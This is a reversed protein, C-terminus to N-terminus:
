EGKEALKELARFDIKNMGTLPLEDVFNYKDPVEYDYLSELLFAGLTKEADAKNAKSKLVVFAVEKFGLVNDPVAVVACSEALGSRMIQNEVEGAFIKYGNKAFMRKIRGDIYLVGNEDIHGIDGTHVWLTGDKHKKLVSSTEGAAVGFYGKMMTPGHIAIEGKENYKLEEGTDPDFASIINGVYPIGVSGAINCNDLTYTACATVETMGYGKTVVCDANHQKLFTNVENEFVETLKDAGVILCKLFSLDYGSPIDRILGKLASPVTIVHNPKYKLILKGLEDPASKPILILEQRMCLHGNICNNLGYFTWPPAVILGSEKEKSNYRNYDNMELIANLSENTAIVGKPAGTTGGTYAIVAPSDPIYESDISGNYNRGGRIFQNWSVVSSNTTRLKSKVANLLRFPAGLSNTPSVSVIRKFQPKGNEPIFKELVMDLTVLLKSKADKCSRQLTSVNCRPDLMNAVAGIRNIAYYVYVVEPINPLCVSVIEKEKVGLAKLAKAAAEVKQFMERYTIKASFYRIAINDGRDKIRNYIYDYNKNKPVAFTEPDKYYKLWPKDISPFGTLEQNNM